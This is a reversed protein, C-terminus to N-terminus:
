LYLVMTATQQPVDSRNTQEVVNEETDIMYDHKHVKLISCSLLRAAEAVHEEDIELSLSVRALAESLRILSELQRVTIRYNSQGGNDEGRLTVYARRLMYAAKQTM